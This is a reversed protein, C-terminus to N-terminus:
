PKNMIIFDSKDKVKINMKALPQRVRVAAKQRAARGLSAVNMALRMAKSLDTDILESDAVPFDTLHISEPADQDVSRVLNQYIEEAVFPTFPALLRIFTNLCTYLTNYAALKDEDSESKWFRRRNRRVYWNSLQDVFSEITSGADKADYSELALTVNTVTQHLLALAWRDIEPREAYPVDADM